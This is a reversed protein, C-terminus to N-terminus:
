LLMMDWCFFHVAAALFCGAGFLIAAPQVMSATEETIKGKSRALDIGTAVGGLVLAVSPLSGLECMGLVWLVIAAGFWAVGIAAFGAGAYGLYDGLKVKQEQIQPVFKSAGHALALAGALALLACMGWAIFRHAWHAAVHGTGGGGGGGGVVAVTCAKLAVVRMRVGDVRGGEIMQNRNLPNQIRTRVKCVGDVIGVVEETEEHRVGTEKEVRELEAALSPDLHGCVPVGDVSRIFWFDDYYQYGSQNLVVGRAGGSFHVVAGKWAAPNSLAEPADIKKWSSSWPKILGPWAANAAEIMKKELAEHAAQSAVKEQGFRKDLGDIRALTAPNASCGQTANNITVKLNYFHQILEERDHGAPLKEGEDLIKGVFSCVKGGAKELAAKAADFTKKLEPDDPFQAVAKTVRDDRLYRQVIENLFLDTKDCGLSPPSHQLFDKLTPPTTEAEWGACSKGYNDDCYKWYDVAPKVVDDRAGQAQGADFAKRQAAVKDRVKATRPDNAPVKALGDKIWTFRDEVNNTMANKNKGDLVDQIWQLNEDLKAFQYDLSNKACLAKIEAVRQQYKALDDGLLKQNEDKALLAEPNGILRTFDDDFGHDKAAEASDHAQSLLRDLSGTLERAQERNGTSTVKKKTWAIKKTLEDRVAAPLHAQTWADGIMTEARALDTAFGEPDGHQGTSEATSIQREIQAKYSGADWNKQADAIRDRCAKIKAVADAKGTEDVGQLLKEAQALLESTKDFCGLSCWTEAEGELATAKEIQVVDDARAAPAAAVVFGVFLAAVVVGRAIRSM